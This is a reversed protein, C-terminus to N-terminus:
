DYTSASSCSRLWSFEFNWSAPYGARTALVQTTESHEMLAVAAHFPWLKNSTRRVGRDPSGYLRTCRRTPLLAVLMTGVGIPSYRTGLAPLRVHHRSRGRSARNWIDGCATIASASRPCSM